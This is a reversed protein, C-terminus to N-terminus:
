GNSVELCAVELRAVLARAEELQKAPETEGTATWADCTLRALEDGSEARKMAEQVEIPVAQLQLPGGDKGTLETRTPANAGVLPAWTKAVECIASIQARLEGITQAKELADMLSMSLHQRVWSADQAKLRRWAESAAQEVTNVACGWEAALAKTTKGRVWNSPGVRMCAIVRDEPTQPIDTDTM